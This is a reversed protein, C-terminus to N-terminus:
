TPRAILYLQAGRPRSATAGPRHQALQRNAIERTTSPRHHRQAPRLTSVPSVPAPLDMTTSASRSMVPARAWGSQIRVPASVATTEATNSISGAPGTAATSSSAPWRAPSPSSTMLRSSAREPRCRAKTFSAAAV